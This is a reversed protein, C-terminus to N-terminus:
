KLTETSAPSKLGGSTKRTQPNLDLNLNLDLAAIHAPMALKVSQPATDALKGTNESRMLTSLTNSTTRIQIRLGAWVALVGLLTLAAWLYANKYPTELLRNLNLMGSGSEATKSQTPPAAQDLSIPVAEAAASSVRIEASLPEVKNSQVEIGALPLAHVSLSLCSLGVGMTSLLGVRLITLLAQSRTM